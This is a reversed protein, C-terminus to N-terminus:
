YSTCVGGSCVAFREVTPCPTAAPCAACHAAAYANAESLITSAGRVSVPTGCSAGCPNDLAVLRCDADTNCNSAMASALERALFDAYGAQGEECTGGGASTDAVCQSCCTGAPKDSHTGPPCTPAAPCDVTSCDDPVCAAPCCEGPFALPMLGQGCELPACKARACAGDGFAGDAGADGSHAGAGRGEGPPVACATLLMSAVLVTPILTTGRTRM